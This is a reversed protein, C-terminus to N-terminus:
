NYNIGPPIQVRRKASCRTVSIHIILTIGCAMSWLSFSVSTALFLADNCSPVVIYYIHYILSPVVFFCFLIPFAALPLIQKLAKWFQDGDSLDEYKLRRWCVRQVLKIVMAIMVTSSAILILMAPGYWLTFTEVTSTVDSSYIWCTAFPSLGYTKTTLPVVAIVAPVILSTVVYLPELKKLNKHFVGLCFLHFTIWMTFILKTWQAYMILFGIATCVQDYFHTNQNRNIFVIQFAEVVSFAFSALVQYLALRYVAKVYLKLDCVSIAAFLCPVASACNSAGIIISYTSHDGDCSSNVM